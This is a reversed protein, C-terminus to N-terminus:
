IIQSNFLNCINIKKTPQKTILVRPCMRPTKKSIVEIFHNEIDNTNIADKVM